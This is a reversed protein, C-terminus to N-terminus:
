SIVEVIGRKSGDRKSQWYTVFNEVSSHILSSPRIWFISAGHRAQAIAHEFLGRAETPCHELRFTDRMVLVVDVDNPHEKATVYSGFIIFRQLQGTRQAVEYIHLLHRTSRSRAGQDAGFREVVDEITATHVGIPLEGTETFAPLAM